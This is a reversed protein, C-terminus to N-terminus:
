RVKLPNLGEGMVAPTASGLTAPYSFTAAYVHFPGPFAEARGARGTAPGILGQPPLDPDGETPNGLRPRGSGVRATDIRWPLVLRVPGAKRNM